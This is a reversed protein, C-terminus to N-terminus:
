RRACAYVIPARHYELRGLISVKPLTSLVKSLQMSGWSALKWSAELEGSM